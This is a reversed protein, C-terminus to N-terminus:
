TASCSNSSFRQMKYLTLAISWQLILKCVWPRSESCQAIKAGPHSYKDWRGLPIVNLLFCSVRDAVPSTLLHTGEGPRHVDFIEISSDFGCYLRFCCLDIICKDPLICSPLAYKNATVNFALSHPAVQRERHDM